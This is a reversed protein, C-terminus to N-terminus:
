DELKYLFSNLPFSEDCGFNEEYKSEENPPLNFPTPLQCTGKVYIGDSPTDLAAWVILPRRDEPSYYNEILGYALEPKLIQMKDQYYDERKIVSDDNQDYFENTSKLQGVVADEDFQLISLGMEMEFEGGTRFSMTNSANNHKIQWDTDKMKPKDFWFLLFESFQIDKLGKHWNKFFISRDVVLTNDKRFEERHVAFDYELMHAYAHKFGPKTAVGLLTNHKTARNEYKIRHIATCPPSVPPDSFKFTCFSAGMVKGTGAPSVQDLISFVEQKTDTIQLFREQYNRPAEALDALKTATFDDGGVLLFAVRVTYNVKNSTDADENIGKSCEDSQCDLKIKGSFQFNFETADNNMGVTVQSTDIELYILKRARGENNCYVDFGNLFIKATTVFNPDLAPDLPGTVDFTFDIMDGSKGKLRQEVVGSYFVAKESKVETFYDVHRLVDSATGSAGAHIIQVRDAKAYNTGEEYYDTEPVILSGLRNTRHNTLIWQHRFGKWIMGNKLYNGKLLYGGLDSVLDPKTDELKSRSNVGENRNQEASDILDSPEETKTKWNGFPSQHETLDFISTKNESM